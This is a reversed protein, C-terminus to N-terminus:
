VIDIHANDFLAILKIKANDVCERISSQMSFANRLSIKRQSRMGIVIGAKFIPKEKACSNKM